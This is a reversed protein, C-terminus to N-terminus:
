EESATHHFLIFPDVPPWAPKNRQIFCYYGESTSPVSYGPECNLACESNCPMLDSIVCACEGSEFLGDYGNEELWKIVIDKADM